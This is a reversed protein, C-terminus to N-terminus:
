LSRERARALQKSTSRSVPVPDYYDRPVLDMPSSGGHFPRGPRGSRGPSVAPTPRSVAEKWGAFGRPTADLIMPLRALGKRDWAWQRPGISSLISGLFPTSM